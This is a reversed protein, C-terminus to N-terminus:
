TIGHFVTDAESTATVQFVRAEGKEVSLEGSATSDTLTLDQTITDMNMATVMVRVRDIGLNGASKALGPRPQFTNLELSVQSSKVNSQFPNEECGTILLLIALLVHIIYATKKMM